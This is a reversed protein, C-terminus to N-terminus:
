KIKVFREVYQTAGQRMTVFYVGTALDAQQLSVVHTGAGAIGSYITKVRSGNPSTLVISVRDRASATFYVRSGVLRLMSSKRNPIVLNTVGTSYKTNRVICIWQVTYPYNSGQTWLTDTAVGPPVGYSTKQAEQSIDSVTITDMTGKAYTGTKPIFWSISFKDGAQYKSADSFNFFKDFNSNIKVLFLSDTGVQCYPYRTQGSTIQGDGPHMIQLPQGAMFRQAIAVQTWLRDFKRLDELQRGQNETNFEIGSGGDLLHPWMVEIGWYAAISDAVATDAFYPVGGYVQDQFCIYPKKTRQNQNWYFSPYEYASHMDNIIAIGGVYANTDAGVTPIYMPEPENLETGVDVLHGYPDVSHIYAAFNIMQQGTLSKTQDTAFMSNADTTEVINWTVACHHAFRAVMERYFLKRTLAFPDTTTLLGEANEFYSVNGLQSLCVNILLGKKTMHEFVIEWQDLKSCDFTKLATATTWPAIGSDVYPYVDQAPGPRNFVRVCQSNLGKSSLYNIAGLLGKGKGGWTSDQSTWDAVHAAFAHSAPTNDFDAFAFINDPSNCGGKIFYDGTEAFQLYHKGVYQLMGKGRFDPGTKDTAGIDFTGTAGDITADATGATASPDIAIDTGTRFSATYTWTGTADPCFHVRWKSGSAAGSVAANGDAAFFGPVIYSKSGNTFTVNLRNNLFTLTDSESAAPGDFTVTVTHWKKLEGTVVAAAGASFVCLLLILITLSTSFLTKEFLFSHKM